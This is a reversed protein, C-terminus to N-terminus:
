KEKEENTFTKMLQLAERGLWNKFVPHKEKVTPEYAKTELINTVDM